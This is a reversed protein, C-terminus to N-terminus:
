LTFTILPVHLFIMVCIFQYQNIFWMEVVLANVHSQLKTYAIEYKLSSATM